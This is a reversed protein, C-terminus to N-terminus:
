GDNDMTNVIDRQALLGYWQLSSRRTIEDVTVAEIYDGRGRPSV